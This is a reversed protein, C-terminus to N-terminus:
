INTRRKHMKTKKHKGLVTFFLSILIFCLANMLSALTIKGNSVLSIILLVAISLLSSVISLFPGSEKGLKTIIFSGIGGSLLLSVISLIQTNATPDKSNYCIITFIFAFVLFLIPQILACLIFKKAKSGEGIKIKRNKM